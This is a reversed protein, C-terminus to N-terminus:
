PLCLNNKVYRLGKIDDLSPYLKNKDDIIRNREIHLKYNMLGDNEETHNLGLAHLFEHYVVNYLTNPTHLLLDSIYIDTENDGQITTYGFNNRYENFDCLENIGNQYVPETFGQKLSIYLINYQNINDIVEIATNKLIPDINPCTYFTKAIETPIYDYLLNYGTVFVVSTYLLKSIWM